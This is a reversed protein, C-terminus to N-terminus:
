KSMRPKLGPRGVHGLYTMQPTFGVGQLFGGHRVLTVFPMLVKCPGETVAAPCGEMAKQSHPLDRPSLGNNCYGPCLM